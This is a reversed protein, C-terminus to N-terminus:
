TTIQGNDTNSFCIERGWGYTVVNDKSVLSKMKLHYIEMEKMCLTKNVYRLGYLLQTWIFM